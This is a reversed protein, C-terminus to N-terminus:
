PEIIKNKYIYYNERSYNIRPKIIENKDIELKLKPNVEKTILYFIPFYNIKLYLFLYSTMAYALSHSKNFAYESSKEVKNYLHIITEKSLDLNKEKIKNIIDEKYKEIEGTKKKSIIKRIINTDNLEFGAMKNLIEMIQEQYIITGYTKNTIKQYVKNNMLEKDEIKKSEYEIKNEIYDNIVKNNYKNKLIKLEKITYEKTFVESYKDKIKAFKPNKDTYTYDIRKNNLYEKKGSLAGPRILALFDSLDEISEPNIKKLFEEKYERISDNEENDLQPIGIFDIKSIGEWIRKDDFNINLPDFDKKDLMTQAMEIKEQNKSNLLDFKIKNINDQDINLTRGEPRNEIDYNFKERDIIVASPHLFSNTKEGIQHKISDKLYPHKKYIDLLEKPVANTNQPIKGSKKDKEIQDLKNSIISIKETPEELIRLSNSIAGKFQLGSIVKIFATQGKYKNELYKLLFEKAKISLDLDIDPYDTRGKNLFREFYLGYKIPDVNHINLFYAILSGPGSGRGIGVTFNNKRLVNIIDNLIMFYKLYNSNNFSILVEYEKVMREYYESQKEKPIQNKYNPSGNKLIYKPLTNKIEEKNDFITEDWLYLLIYRFQRKTFNTENLNREFDSTIKSLKEIDKETLIINHLDPNENLKVDESILINEAFSQTNSIIEKIQNRKKNEAIKLDKDTKYYSTKKMKFNPLKKLLDNTNEVFKGKTYKLKYNNEENEKELDEYSLKMNSEISRYIMYSKFDEKKLYYNNNFVIPNFAMQYPIYELKEGPNIAIFINQKHIFSKKMLSKNMSKPIVINIDKPLNNLNELSIQNDNIYKQTKKIQERNKFMITIEEIGGLNVKISPIFKIGLKKSEEIYYNLNIFSRDSVSFVDIKNTKIYEIIEEPKGIKDKDLTSNIGLCINLNKNKPEKIKIKEQKGYYPSKDIYKEIPDIKNEKNYKSHWENFDKVDNTPLPINPVEGKSNPNEIVPGLVKSISEIFNRGAEDNDGMIYVRKGFFLSIEQKSLESGAGPISIAKYGLQIATNADSGGEFIIITENNELLDKNYITLPGYGMFRFKKDVNPDLSRFQIGEIERKKGYTTKFFPMMVKNNKFPIDFNKNFFSYKYLYYIGKTLNILKKDNDSFKSIYNPNESYQKYIKKLEQIKYRKNISPTKEAIEFFEMEPIIIKKSSFKNILYKKLEILLTEDLDIIGRNKLIEKTLNRGEFYELLEESPEGKKNEIIFNYFEKLIEQKKITDEKSHFSSSNFIKNEDFNEGYMSKYLKQSAMKLSENERLEKINIKSNKSKESLLKLEKDLNFEKILETGIKYEKEKINYKNCLWKFQNNNLQSNIAEIKNFLHWVYHEILDLSHNGSIGCAFCRFIGASDKISLAPTKDNQRHGTSFCRIKMEPISLAKNKDIVKSIGLDTNFTQEMLVATELIQGM